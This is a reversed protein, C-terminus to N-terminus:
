RALAQRIAEDKPRKPRPNDKLIARGAKIIQPAFFLGIITPILVVGLFIKRKGLTRQAEAEIAVPDEAAEVLKTQEGDSFGCFVQREGHKYFAFRGANKIAIADALMSACVVNEVLTTKGGARAFGLYTYATGTRKMENTIVDATALDRAAGIDAILGEVLKVSPGCFLV